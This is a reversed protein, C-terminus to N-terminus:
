LKKGPPLTMSNVITNYMGPGNSNMAAVKFMYSTNGTLGSATFSTGTVTKMNEFNTTGFEIKYETLPGNRDVCNLEDWTLTISSFTAFTSRVNQVIGPGAFLIYM